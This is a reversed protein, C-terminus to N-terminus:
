RRPRSPKRLVPRWTILTKIVSLSWVTSVLDIFIFQEFTQSLMLSLWYHSTWFLFSRHYHSTRFNSVFCTIIVQEFYFLDIIIVQEFNQSLVLSLSKNTIFFISSLSKNLLKLCFLHYHSTWFNSVFYTIIVQEFDVLEIIIVEWELVVNDAIEAEVIWVLRSFNHLIESNTFDCIM